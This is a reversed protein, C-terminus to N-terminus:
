SKVGLLRKITEEDRLIEQAQADKGKLIEIRREDITNPTMQVYIQVCERQGIRHIRDSFQLNKVQSYSEQMFLLRSAATLTLGEAGAGLTCLIVRSKGAQFSDVNKRREDVSHAGTVYTCTIGLKTLQEGALEILQRSEAGVVLQEDGLDELLEVLDDVKNSPAKLRVNEDEDLYATASAFQSLRTLKALANGATILGNELQAVMLDQMQLYAKKQGVHMPTERYQFPLKPPLQPLALAKPVRRILPDVVKHLEEAHAPELGVVTSGGYFNPALRVYRDMWRTKTPFWTPEVLHLLPWINGVNNTVPTGTMAFCYFADRAIQWAARTQQSHPDSCKHVEDFIATRVGLDNLEKRERQKETLELSGYPALRTHLRASEWNLIFVDAGSALAKRRQAVGGDVVAIKVRPSWAEFEKQWVTTKLSNPCVVVAPYPMEAMSDLVQLTRVVVGTKGLGPENALLARGNTILFAVDVRQYDYLEFGNPNMKGAEVSTIREFIEAVRSDHKFDDPHLASRMDVAPRIRLAWEGQSWSTLLPGVTLKENFLGRLIICTSWALPTLWGDSKKDFRAGPVMLMLQRDTFTTAVHIQEGTEDVEAHPM